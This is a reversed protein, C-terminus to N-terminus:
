KIQINWNKESDRMKKNEKIQNPLFFPMKNACKFRALVDLDTLFLVFLFLFLETVTVQSYNM